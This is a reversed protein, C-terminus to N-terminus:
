SSPEPPASAPQVRAWFAEAAAAQRARPRCLRIEVAIDWAPEGARLLRGTGLDEQVLSLPLWAIGRRDEVMAKLVMATDSTFIPELRPEEQHLRLAARVIRGLGSGSSYALFPLFQNQAGPLGFAPLGGSAPASVPVLIEEGVRVSSFRGGALPGPMSAHAHCLLFPARGQVILGECVELTDSILRIPGVPGQSELTRLWHPFFSQSLGHTAAITLAARDADAAERAELRAQLVRRLLDEAEPRFREGAPTLTVPHATRDFLPVGVWAELARIRRSFAPQTLHRIEAARSFNRCEALAVFDELWVIDMDEMGFACSAIVFRCQGAVPTVVLVGGDM